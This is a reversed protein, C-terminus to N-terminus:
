KLISQTDPLIKSTGTAKHCADCQSTLHNINMFRNGMAASQHSPHCADCTGVPGNAAKWARRLEPSHYHGPRENGWTLDSHCKTCGGDGVPRTITAPDNYNGTKFAILNHLGGWLGWVRGPIFQRSHCDICRTHAKAHFVALTTPVSAKLSAQYYTAEPETHCSACFGDNNETQIGVTYVGIALILGAAGLILLSRILRNQTLRTFYYYKSL